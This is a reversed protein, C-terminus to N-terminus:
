GCVATNYCGHMNDHCVGDGIWNRHMGEWECKALATCNVWGEENSPDYGDDDAYSDDDNWIVCADFTKCFLDTAASDGDLSNCHGGKILFSVVDVCATGQSVGTWDIAEMELTAFCDICKASPLCQVFSADCM